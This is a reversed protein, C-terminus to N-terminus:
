QGSDGVTVAFRLLGREGKGDARLYGLRVLKRRSRIVTSRCLGTKRGLFAISLDIADGYVETSAMSVVLIRMDAAALRRDCAIRGFLEGPCEFNNKM